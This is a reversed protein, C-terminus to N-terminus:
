CASKQKDIEDVIGWRLLKKRDALEIYQCLAPRGEEDLIAAAQEAPWIDFVPRPIAIGQKEPTLRGDETLLLDRGEIEEGFAEEVTTGCDGELSSDDRDVDPLLGYARAREITSMETQGLWRLMASAALKGARELLWRNTPSTEPDKIKLRAPDQIFPANCAFPLATEIGTPLVVYLRGKAGLVIEIKYPPFETEEEIGLMREQRIEALAEEPFSEPESRILLFEEDDKEYLAM